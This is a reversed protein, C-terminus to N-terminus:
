QPNRGIRDCEGLLRDIAKVEDHLGLSLYEERAQRLPTTAEDVLVRAHLQRQERDGGISIDDTAGGRLTTNGDRQTTNQPRQTTNGEGFQGRNAANNADGHQTRQEM